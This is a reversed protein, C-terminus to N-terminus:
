RTPAATVALASTVPAMGVHRAIGQQQRAVVAARQWDIKGELQAAAALTRLAQMPDGRWRYIDRHVELWVGDSTAAVLVPEYIITVPTGVKVRRFLDSVDDDHLRICGHTRYQYISSAANTGHLGYGPRDLGIWYSGLPNEPSYPGVTTVVDRADRRMEAQISKPVEWTPNEELRVVKFRGHPTPWGPRGVAAPYRAILQGEEFYFVTRQPVNIVIGDRAVHPVLHANDVALITGPHLADRPRFGNDAALVAADIGFRAALSGFTDGALTVHTFPENTLMAPSSQTLGVRTACVVSMVLAAIINRYGDRVM